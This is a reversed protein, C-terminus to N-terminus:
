KGLYAQEYYARGAEFAPTVIEKVRNFETECWEWATQEDAGKISEIVEARIKEFEADDKAMIIKPLARYIIDNCSDMIRRIDMPIDSVGVAVTQAYDYSLDSTKGAEVVQMLAAGPYEVDYYDCYDQYLPALALGRYASEEMLDYSYGDPHHATGQSMNWWAQTSRGFGTKQWDADNESRRQITEEFMYPVGNEDYDWQEGQVGTFVTRIYDPNHLYDIVEIAADMNKANKSIFLYNTPANGTLNLKNAHVLAGESPVVVNGALTNPDKKVEENYLVNYNYIDSYYYGSRLKANWDDYTMTFSDLDFLDERYLKNYFAMDKWFASHEVDVYGDYLVCDIFGALYLANNFTWPNQAIDKLYAGRMFFRSLENYHGMAYMQTGDEHTPHLAKIAIFANLYDEDSNIPPCGIEKYYDWRITYGRGPIKGAGVREPGLGPAVFLLQQEEGGLLTRVLENRAEFIPGNFHPMKEKVTDLDLAMDNRIISPLYEQLGIVIDPLEGGALLLSFKDKDYYTYDIKVNLDNQLIQMVQQDLWDEAFVSASGLTVVRPEEAVAFGAFLGMAMAAIMLISILKRM